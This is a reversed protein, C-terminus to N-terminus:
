SQSKETKMDQSETTTKERRMHDRITNESIMTTGKGITTTGKEITMIEKDIKM